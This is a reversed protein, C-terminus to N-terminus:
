RLRELLWGPANKGLQETVFNFTEEDALKGCWKCVHGVYVQLTMLRRIMDLDAIGWSFDKGRDEENYVAEFNHRKGGNYCRNKFM